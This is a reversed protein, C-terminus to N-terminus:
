PEKGFRELIATWIKTMGKLSGLIMAVGFLFSWFIWSGNMGLFLMEFLFTQSDASYVRYFQYLDYFVLISGSVFTFLALLILLPSQSLTIRDENEASIHNVFSEAQKWDMDAEECVDAVIDDVNRADTLDALVKETMELPIKGTM